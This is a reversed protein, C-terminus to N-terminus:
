QFSLPEIENICSADPKTTPDNFFDAVINKACSDGLSAGHTGDAFEFYFSHTLEDSV